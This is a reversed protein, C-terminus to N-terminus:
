KLQELESDVMKQAVDRMKYRAQWNLDKRAKEPNAKSVLIDSPRLLDDSHVLHDKLELGLYSFTTEAFQGLSNSEGTAIVYDQPKRQQLMMWMAGVYEPAWGWDREIMMNGLTLKSELGLYIKCAAHVIKRTVFRKPRLSSEHNFLLGSCAFLGYANRYNAVAWFAAAKSFGYPSQPRFPTEEDATYGGTNGFCESSSANYLKVPVDLFRIAELLNLTGIGISEFTEVPQEFSLGVSTQGGLNYVEDPNVDKLVQLVSRFDNLSASFTKVHSQIGIRKLNDFSAVQADRSTGAVEYNKKLLFDALYTGDQGAIGIIM